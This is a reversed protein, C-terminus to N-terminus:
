LMERLLQSLPHADVELREIVTFHDCGRIIEGHVRAAKCNEHLFGCFRKSQERFAPPDHEGAAVVVHTGPLVHRFAEPSFRLPSFKLADALSMNCADNVYSQQIPKLDYVGSVLMYGAIGCIGVSWGTTDLGYERNWDTGMMCAALHGGASHGCVYVRSEPFRRLVLAVAAQVQAVLNAFSINPCLDYGVAAFIDVQGDQLLRDAFWCSDRKSLAQWYGGHIYVLVKKGATEERSPVKADRKLFIDVSAEGSAGNGHSHVATEVLRLRRRVRESGQALTACHDGVVQDGDQFEGMQGAPARSILRNSWQSPSYDFDLKQKKTARSHQRWLWVLSAAAGAAAAWVSM